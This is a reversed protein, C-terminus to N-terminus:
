DSVPTVNRFIRNGVGTLSNLINQWEQRGKRIKDLDARTMSQGAITYSQGLLVAKEAKVYLSIMEKAEAIQPNEAM